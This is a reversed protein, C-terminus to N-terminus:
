DLLSRLSRTTPDDGWESEIAHCAELAAALAAADGALAAAVAEDRAVSWGSAADAWEIGRAAWEAHEGAAARLASFYARERM